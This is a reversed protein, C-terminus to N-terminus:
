LLEIELQIIQYFYSITIVLIAFLMSRIRSRADIFLLTMEKRAVRM